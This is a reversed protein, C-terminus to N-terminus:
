LALVVDAYPLLRYAPGLGDYFNVGAALSHREDIVGKANQTTIVPARLKEALLRVAGADDRVMGGGAIIVPRKAAALLEAARAVVDPAALSPVSSAPST